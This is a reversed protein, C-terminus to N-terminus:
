EKYFDNKLMKIKDTLNFKTLINDYKIEQKQKSKLVRLFCKFRMKSLIVTNCPKQM